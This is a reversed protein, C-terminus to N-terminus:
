HHKRLCSTFRCSVCGCGRYAFVPDNERIPSHCSRCQSAHSARNGRGAEPHADASRTPPISARSTEFHENQSLRTAESILIGDHEILDEDTLDIIVPESQANNEAQIEQPRDIFGPSNRFNINTETDETLDIVEIHNLIRSSAIQTHAQETVRTATFQQIQTGNVIFISCSTAMISILIRLPIFPLSTIYSSRLSFLRLSPSM